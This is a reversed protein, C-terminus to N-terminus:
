IIKGPNLINNPDFLRKIEKLLSIYSPPYMLSM